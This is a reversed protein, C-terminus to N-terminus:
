DTTQAGEEIIIELPADQGVLTGIEGFLAEEVEAKSYFQTATFIIVLLITALSLVTYYALAAAHTMADDDLFKSVTQKLINWYFSLAVPNM